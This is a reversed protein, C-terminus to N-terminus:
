TLVCLKCWMHSVFGAVSCLQVQLADMNQAQSAKDERLQVVEDSVSCNDRALEESAAAMESCSHLLVHSVPPGATHLIAKSCSDFCWTKCNITCNHFALHCRMGIVGSLAKCM